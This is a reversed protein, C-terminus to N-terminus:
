PLAAFAAQLWKLPLADTTIFAARLLGRVKGACCNSYVSSAALIRAACSRQCTHQAHWCFRSLRQTCGVAMKVSLGCLDPGAGALLRPAAPVMALRCSFATLTPGLDQALM